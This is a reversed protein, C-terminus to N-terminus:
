QKAGSRREDQSLCRLKLEEKLAAEYHALALYAIGIETKLQNQQEQNCREDAIQDGLGTIQSKLRRIHERVTTDM